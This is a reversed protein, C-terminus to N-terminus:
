PISSYAHNISINNKDMDDILESNYNHIKILRGLNGDSIGLEKSIKGRTKGRKSVNKLEECRNFYKEIMSRYSLNYELRHTNRVGGDIKEISENFKCILGKIDKVQKDNLKFWEGHTNEKNFHKHLMKEIRHPNNLERYVDYLMLPFPSNSSLLRLRSVINDTIGIKYIPHRKTKIVYLITKM